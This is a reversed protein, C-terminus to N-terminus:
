TVEDTSHMTEDMSTAAIPVLPRSSRLSSSPSLHIPSSHPNSHHHHHPEQAPNSSRSKSLITTPKTTTATTTPANSSPVPPKPILPVVQANMEELLNKLLSIERALTASKEELAHKEEDLQDMETELEREARVVKEIKLNLTTATDKPVNHANVLKKRVQWNQRQLDTIQDREAWIDKCTRKILKKTKKIQKTLAANKIEAQLGADLSRESEQRKLFSLNLDNMTIEGLGMKKKSSSSGGGKNNGSRTVSGGGPTMVTSFSTSSQVFSTLSSAQLVPTTITTISESALSSSGDFTSTPRPSVMISSSSAPGAAPFQVKRRQTRMEKISQKIQEMSDLSEKDLASLGKQMKARKDQAVALAAAAKVRDDAEPPLDHQKKHDNHRKPQNPSPEAPPQQPLDYHHAETAAASTIAV